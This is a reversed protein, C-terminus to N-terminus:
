ISQPAIFQYYAWALAIVIAVALWILSKRPGQSPPKTEPEPKPRKFKLVNDDNM